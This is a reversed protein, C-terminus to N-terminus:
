AKVDLPLHTDEAVLEVLINEGFHDFDPLLTEKFNDSPRLFAHSEVEGEM